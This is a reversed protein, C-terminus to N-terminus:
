RRGRHAFAGVAAFLAMLAVTTPEPVYEQDLHFRDMGFCDVANTVSVVVKDVGDFAPGLFIPTTPFGWNEVPLLVPAGTSVNSVFGEVYAQEFGTAAGGGLATNSTLDFYNLNFTGGGIKTIEVATVGGFNGTSWHSHIVDNGPQYYSGVHTAFGASGSNPLFDLRFGNEEYYDVNPYDLTNTTTSTTADLHTVTGGTFDVIAAHSQHALNSLLLAVSAFLVIRTM